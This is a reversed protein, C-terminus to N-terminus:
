ATGRPYRTLLKCVAAFLDIVTDRPSAADFSLITVGIKQAAAPVNKLVAAMGANNPNVLMAVRTLKSVMSCLMELHKPGLYGFFNKRGTINGGPRAFHNKAVVRHRQEFDRLRSAAAAVEAPVGRVGQGFEDGV